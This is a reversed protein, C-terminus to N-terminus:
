VPLEEPQAIPTLIWETGTWSLTLKSKRFYETIKNNVKGNELFSDCVFRWESDLGGPGYLDYVKGCLECSRLSHKTKVGNCLSYTIINTITYETRCNHPKKYGCQPCM